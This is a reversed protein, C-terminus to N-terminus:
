MVSSSVRVGHTRVALKASARRPLQWSASQSFQQVVRFSKVIKSTMEDTTTTFRVPKMAYLDYLRDDVEKALVDQM